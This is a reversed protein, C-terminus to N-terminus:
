EANPRMTSSITPSRWEAVGGVARARCKALAGGRTSQANAAQLQSQVVRQLQTRQRHGKM